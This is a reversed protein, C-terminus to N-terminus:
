LEDELEGVFDDYAALDFGDDWSMWKVSNKPYPNNRAPSATKKRQQSYARYGEREADKDFEIM